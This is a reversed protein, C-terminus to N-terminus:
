QDNLGQFREILVLEPNHRGHDENDVCQVFAIVMFSHFLEEVDDEVAGFRVFARQFGTYCASGFSVDAFLERTVIDVGADVEVFDVVANNFVADVKIEVGNEASYGFESRM